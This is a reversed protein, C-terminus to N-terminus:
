VIGDNKKKNLLTALLQENDFSRVKEKMCDISEKRM